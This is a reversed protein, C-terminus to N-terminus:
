QPHNYIPLIAWKPQNPSEYYRGAASTITVVATMIRKSNMPFVIVIFIFFSIIM